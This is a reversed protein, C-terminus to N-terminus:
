KNSLSDVPFLGLFFKLKTMKLVEERTSNKFVTNTNNLNTNIASFSFFGYFYHHLYHTCTKAHTNQLHQTKCWLAINENSLPPLIPLIKQCCQLNSIIHLEALKLTVKTPLVFPTHHEFIPNVMNTKLDYDSGWKHPCPQNIAGLCQQWRRFHDQGWFM